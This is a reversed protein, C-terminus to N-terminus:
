TTPRTHESIHILSLDEASALDRSQDSIVGLNHLAPSNDPEIALAAELHEIADSVSRKQYAIHALNIYSIADPTGDALANRCVREAEDLQGTAILQGVKKISETSLM